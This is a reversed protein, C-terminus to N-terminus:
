CLFTHKHNSTGSIGGGAEFHSLIQIQDASLAGMNHAQSLQQYANLRRELDDNLATQNDICTKLSEIELQLSQNTEQFHAYQEQAESKSSDEFRTTAAVNSTSPPLAKEQETMDLRLKLSECEEQLLKREVDVNRTIEQEEMLADIQLQLEIIKGSLEDREHRTNSLINEMEELRFKLTTHSTEMDKLEKLQKKLESTEKEAKSVQSKLEDQIAMELLNDEPSSSKSKQGRQSNQLDKTLTKVKLTLKGHKIKAANLEEQLGNKAEETTRLKHRLDSIEGELQLVTESTENATSQVLVEDDAGWGDEGEAIVIDMGEVNSTSQICEQSIAQSRAQEQLRTVTNQLEQNLHQVADIEIQKAELTNRLVGDETNVAQREKLDNEKRELNEKIKIIEEQLSSNSEKLASLELSQIKFAEETESYAKSLNNYEENRNESWKHWDQLYQQCTQLELKTEEFQSKLESVDEINETFIKQTTETQEISSDEKDKELLNRQVSDLQEKLTLIEREKENLDQLMTSVKETNEALQRQANSLSENLESNQAKLIDLQTNTEDDLENSVTTMAAIDSEEKLTLIEREKEKLDQLLSSVKKANEALEHKTNSLYDNLELNQSKLNDLQTTMEDDLESPSTAKAASDLEEKLTLIQSEKEKLNQAMSSVKETKEALQKQTNALYENLESNQTKLSELQKTMEEDLETAPSDIADGDNSNLKKLSILEDNLRNYSIQGEEYLQQLNTIELTKAEGWANWDQLYKKCMELEEKLEVQQIDETDINDKTPEINSTLTMNKELNQIKDEKEEISRKAADLQKVLNEVNESANELQEKLNSIEEHLNNTKSECETTISETQLRLDGMQTEKKELEDKLIQLTASDEIKSKNLQELAEKAVGIEVTLQSCRENAEDLSIRTEDYLAVDVISDGTQADVSCRLEENQKVLDDIEQKLEEKESTLRDLTETLDNIEFDKTKVQGKLKSVENGEDESKHASNSNRELEEQLRMVEASAANYADTYQVLSINMNSFETAQSESWTQWDSIAQQYRELESKYWSIENDPAQQSVDRSPQTNSLIQENAADFMSENNSKLPEKQDDFQDFYSSATITEEPSQMTATTVPVLSETQGISSKNQNVEITSKVEQGSATSKLREIEEELKKSSSEVSSLMEALNEKEKSLNQFEELAPLTNIQSQLALNEDQSAKLLDHVSALKKNLSEIDNESQGLSEQLSQVHSQIKVMEDQMQTDKRKELAHPEETSPTQNSEGFPDSSELTQANTNNFFDMATNDVAQAPNTNDFNFPDSSTSFQRGYGDDWSFIAPQTPSPYLGPTEQHLKDDQMVKTPPIDVTEQVNSSLNGDTRQDPPTAELRSKLHKIEEENTEFQARLENYIIDKEKISQRLFSTEGQLQEINSHYSNENSSIKDHLANCESAKEELLSRISSEAEEKQNTLEVLEGQKIQLQEQLLRKEDQILAIENQLDNYMRTTEDVTSELGQATNQHQKIQDQFTVLESSLQQIRTQMEDREKQFDVMEAAPQITLPHAEVNEIHEVIPAAHAEETLIPIENINDQASIPQLNDFWSGANDGAMPGFAPFDQQQLANFPDQEFVQNSQVLDFMNSAQQPSPEQMIDRRSEQYHPMLDPPHTSPGMQHNAVDPHQLLGQHTVDPPPRNAEALDHLVPPQNEMPLGHVDDRQAARSQNRLDTLEERLHELLMQKENLLRKEGELEQSLDHYIKLQQELMEKANSASQEAENKKWELAQNTEKLHEVEKKIDVLEQKTNDSEMNRHLEDLENQKQNLKEKEVDLDHELEKAKGELQNLQIETYSSKEKAKELQCKLDNNEGELVDIKDDISSQRTGLKSVKDKLENKENESAELQDNINKLETRALELADDSKSLENQWEEKYNEFKEIKEKAAELDKKVVKM